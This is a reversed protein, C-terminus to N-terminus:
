EWRQPYFDEIDEFQRERDIDEERDAWHDLEREQIIENVDM